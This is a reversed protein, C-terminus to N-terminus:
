GLCILGLDSNKDELPTLKVNGYATFSLLINLLETFLFLTKELPQAQKIKPTGCLNMIM